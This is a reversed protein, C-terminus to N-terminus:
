GKLRRGSMVQRTQILLFVTGSKYFVVPRSDFLGASFSRM